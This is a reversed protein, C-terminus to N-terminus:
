KEQKPTVLKTDLDFVLTPNAAEIMRKVTQLDMYKGDVIEAQLSTLPGLRSQCAGLERLSQALAAQVDVKPPATQAKLIGLGLTLALWASVILRTSMFHRDKTIQRFLGTLMM